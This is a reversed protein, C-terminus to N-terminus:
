EVRGEGDNGRLRFDVPRPRGPWGWASYSVMPIVVPLAVSLVQQVCGWTMASKIRLGSTLLLASAGTM